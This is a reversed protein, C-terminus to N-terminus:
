DRVTFPFCPSIEHLLKRATIEGSMPKIALALLNRL